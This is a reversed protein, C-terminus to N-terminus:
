NGFVLRQASISCNAAGMVNNNSVLLRLARFVNQVNKPSSSLLVILAYKDRSSMALKDLIVVDLAILVSEINALSFIKPISPLLILINSRLCNSLIFSNPYRFHLTM